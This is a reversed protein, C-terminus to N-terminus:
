CRYKIYFLYRYSSTSATLLVNIRKGRVPTIYKVQFSNDDNVGCIKGTFWRRSYDKTEAMKMEETETGELEVAEKVLLYVQEDSDEIVTVYNTEM